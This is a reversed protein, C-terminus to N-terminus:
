GKMINIFDGVGDKLYIIVNSEGLWLYEVKEANLENFYQKQRQTLSEERANPFIQKIEEKTKDKILSNRKWDSIVAHAIHDTPYPYFGIKWLNYRLSLDDTRNYFHTFTGSAVFTSIALLIWLVKKM